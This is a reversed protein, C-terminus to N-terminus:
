KEVVILQNVAITQLHSQQGDPWQIYLDSVVGAPGLGFLLRPDESSLYSSGAHLERRLTRGGPLVATVVTGPYFGDLQVTLWNGTAGDNQLLVLRGGITNIAMDPDGDNDFDAVAGGRGLLPGIDVFGAPDSWEEFRGPRGQATLNGFLQMPQADAALDLVPIQGNVVLLDLDSDLDVDAWSSGWGTWILGLNPSGFNALAEDFQLTNTVTHNMYVAHLQQGMNTILLDFRGDGNFDGSAVGMGSNPDDVGAPAAVERLRFGLGEPDNEMPVNEYLRNPNTDNAVYLDLDGDGDFDSLSAGLGYEFNQRELGVVEGVERFTTGNQNIFLLDRRGLFTNPFGLTAEPLPNNVDVYGAVFLDPWGDRNLDGVVAATQWGYAGVGAAEAGEHFTGDGNNWLLMAFRATTIYIDSWGDQNFDAAVCGNGRLPLAAGAPDSVDSFHGSDNRFLATRPLGGGESEWRGAEAEAYSNVVFLDLWDDNNYDLWCLGGGMMAAADGSMGWRFAGQQFDLGVEDAVNRFTIRGPQWAVPLSTPTPEPRCAGLLLLLLLLLFPRGM